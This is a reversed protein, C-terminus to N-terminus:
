LQVCINGVQWPSDSIDSDSGGVIKQDVSIAVTVAPLLFIWFM